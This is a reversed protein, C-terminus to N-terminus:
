EYSEESKELNEIDNVATKELARLYDRYIAAKEYEESNVANELKARIAMRDTLSSKFSALRHPLSGTYANKIGTQKMLEEIETKFISYCEPCGVKFDKRIAGLKQACVPCCRNNEDITKKAMIGQVLKLVSAAISNSSIGMERACKSCIHVACTRGTMDARNITMESENEHCIDCIM